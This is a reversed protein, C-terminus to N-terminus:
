PNEELFKSIMDRIRVLAQRYIVRSMGTEDEYIHEPYLGLEIRSDALLTLKLTCLDTSTDADDNGAFNIEM